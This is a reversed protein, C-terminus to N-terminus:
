TITLRIPISFHPSADILSATLHRQTSCGSTNGDYILKRSFYRVQSYSGHAWIHTIHNLMLLMRM